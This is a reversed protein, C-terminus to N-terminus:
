DGGEGFGKHISSLKSSEDAQDLMLNYEAVAFLCLATVLATWIFIRFFHFEREMVCDM